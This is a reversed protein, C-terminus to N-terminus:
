HAAKKRAAVLEDGLQIVYDGIVNDENETEGLMELIESAKMVGLLGISGSVAKLEHANRRMVNIDGNSHAEAINNYLNRIETHATAIFTRAYEEGMIERIEDITSSVSDKKEHETDLLSIKQHDHIKKYLIRPDIPKTMYDVMGAELCAQIHQDMVNATLGIIPIAQWKDGLARINRTATIGDMRPMQMDMLVMHYAEADGSLAKVAEEGDGVIDYHIDYKDLLRAIIIQNVKNDEAILVRLRSSIDVVGDEADEQVPREIAEVLPVEFWFLSGKGKESSVGIRGDMLEVLQRSISLGLGTGGYSSAISSDAQVYNQFLNEQQEMTMGMGTDKIEFYLTDRNKGRVGVRLRVYGKDTFKVANSVLNMLVQQLRHPDLCIYPPVNSDVTLLLSINKEEARQLLLSHVSHLLHRLGFNVNHIQFKGAEIKSLDLIDNLTNLLASSCNEITRICDQQRNDLDTEKMFHIMGMIGNLPTRIEHSMTALFQMKARSATEAQLAAVRLQYRQMALSRGSKYNQLGTMLALVYAAGFLPIVMHTEQLSFNNYVMFSVFGMYLTLEYVLLPFYVGSISPYYVVALLIIFYGLMHMYFMDAQLPYFLATLFLPIYVAKCLCLLAIHVAKKKYNPKALITEYLFNQAWVGLAAGILCLAVMDRTRGEPAGYLYYYAVGLLFYPLMMFVSASKHNRVYMRFLEHAINKRWSTQCHPLNM